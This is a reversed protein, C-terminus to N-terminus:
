MYIQELTTTGFLIIIYKSSIRFFGFTLYLRRIASNNGCKSSSTSRSGLLISVATPKDEYVEDYIDEDQVNSINESGDDEDVYTYEVLHQASHKDGGCGSEKILIGLWRGQM